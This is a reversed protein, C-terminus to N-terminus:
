VQLGYGTINGSANTKNLAQWMATAEEMTMIRDKPPLEVGKAQFWDKNYYMVYPGVDKPLALQNGSGMKGTAPSYQYRTLTSEYMDETDLLTSANVFPSLNMLKGTGAWGSIAGDPVLFVDHAKDAALYNGYVGEYDQIIELNVKISPYRQEFGKLVAEVVSKEINAGSSDWHAMKLTCPDGEYEYKMGLSDYKSMIKELETQTVEVPKPTSEGSTFTCGTVGLLLVLLAISSFLNNKQM